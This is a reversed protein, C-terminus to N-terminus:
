FDDEEGYFMHYTEYEAGCNKCKVHNPMSQFTGDESLFEQLEENSFQQKEEETLEELPIIVTREFNEVGCEDCDWTYAPRLETKM